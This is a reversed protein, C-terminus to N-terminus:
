CIGIRKIKQSFKWDLKDDVEQLETILTGTHWGLPGPKIRPMDQESEAIVLPLWIISSGVVM